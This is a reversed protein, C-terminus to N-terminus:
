LGLDALEQLDRATDKTKYFEWQKSALSDILDKANGQDGSKEPGGKLGSPLRVGQDSQSFNNKNWIQFDGLFIVINKATDSASPECSVMAQITVITVYLFKQLDKIADAVKVSGSPGSGSFDNITVNFNWAPTTPQSPTVPQRTPSEGKKIPIEGKKIPFEGKKLANENEPTTDLIYVKSEDQPPRLAASSGLELALGTGPEILRSTTFITLGMLKRYLGISRIEEEQLLLNDNLVSKLAYKGTGDDLLTWQQNFDGNFSNSMLFNINLNGINTNHSDNTNNSNTNNSNDGVNDSIPASNNIPASVNRYM